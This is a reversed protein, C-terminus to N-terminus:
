SSARQRFPPIVLLFLAGGHLIQGRSSPFGHRDGSLSAEIVVRGLEAEVIRGGINVLMGENAQEEHQDYLARVGYPMDPM